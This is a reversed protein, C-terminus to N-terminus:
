EFGMQVDGERALEGIGDEINNYAWYFQPKRTFSLIAREQGEDSINEVLNSFYFYFLFEQSWIHLPFPLKKIHGDKKNTLVM